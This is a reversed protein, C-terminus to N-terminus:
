KGYKNDISPLDFYKYVSGDQTFSEQFQAFPNAGAFSSLILKCIVYEWYFGVPAPCPPSIPCLVLCLSNPIIAHPVKVFCFSTCSSFSYNKFKNLM